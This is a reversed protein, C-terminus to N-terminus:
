ILAAVTVQGALRSGTRQSRHPRRALVRAAQGAPPGAHRGPPAGPVAVAGPEARAPQGQPAARPQGGEHRARVAAAGRGTFVLDSCSYYTDPTSTTQWVMYLVHRGSRDPPLKGSM